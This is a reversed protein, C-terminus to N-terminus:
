IRSRAIRGFFRVAASYGERALPDYARGSSRGHRRLNTITIQQLADGAFRRLAVLATRHFKRLRRSVGGMQDVEKRHLEVNDHLEVRADMGCQLQKASFFDVAEFDDRRLTLQNTQPFITVYIWYASMLSFVVIGIWSMFLHYPTPDPRNLLWVGAAVFVLSGVAYGLHERRSPCLTAPGPFQSLIQEIKQQEDAASTFFGM